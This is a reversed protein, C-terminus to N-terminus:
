HRQCTASSIYKKKREHHNLNNNNNQSTHCIFLWKFTTFSNSFGSAMPPYEFKTDCIATASYANPKNLDFVFHPM